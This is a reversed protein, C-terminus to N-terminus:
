LRRLDAKPRTKVSAEGLEGGCLLGQAHNASFRGTTLLRVRGLPSM